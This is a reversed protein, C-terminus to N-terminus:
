SSRRPRRRPISPATAPLPSALAGVVVLALILGGVISRTRHRPRERDGRM